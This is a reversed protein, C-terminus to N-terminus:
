TNVLEARDRPAEPSSKRLGDRSNRCGEEIAQRARLLQSEAQLNGCARGDRSRNGAHNGVHQRQMEYNARAHPNGFYDIPGATLHAFLQFVLAVLNRVQSLIATFHNAALRQEPRGDINHSEIIIETKCTTAGRDM